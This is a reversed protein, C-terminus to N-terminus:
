WEEVGKIKTIAGSRELMTCLNEFENFTYTDHPIIKWFTKANDRILKIYEFGDPINESFENFLNFLDNESKLVYKLENDKLIIENTM